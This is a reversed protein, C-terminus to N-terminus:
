EQKILQYTQGAIDVTMVDESIEYDLNLSILNLWENDSAAKLQLTDNDVETYTFLDAGLMDSLGAIRLKGNEQFTFSIVGSTDTWTGYLSFHQFTDLADELAEEVINQAEKPNEIIKQLIDKETRYFTFHQGLITLELTEKSLEYQIDFSLPVEVLGGAKLTLNGEKDDTYRFLDAGLLNDGGAVHLYGDKEFSFAIMQEADTWTGYITPKKLLVVCIVVAILIVVSLLALLLVPSKKRRERRHTVSVPQITQRVSQGSAKISNGCQNCFAATDALQAGCKNCFM